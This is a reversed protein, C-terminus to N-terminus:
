SAGTLATEQEASLPIGKAKYRKLTEVDPPILVAYQEHKEIIKLIDSPAPIDSFNQIYIKFAATIKDMDYDALIWSFGEVLVELEAETKGYQKQLSCTQSILHTLQQKNRVSPKQQTSPLFDRRRLNGLLNEIRTIQQM